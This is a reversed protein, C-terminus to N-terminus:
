IKEYHSACSRSCQQPRFRPLTQNMDAMMLGGFKKSSNFPPTALALTSEWGVLEKM